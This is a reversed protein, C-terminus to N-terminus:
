KARPRKRTVVAIVGLLFSLIALAGFTASPHHVVALLASVAPTPRPAAVFTGEVAAGDISARCERLDAVCLAFCGVLRGGPADGADAFGIFTRAALEGEAEGAGDIRESTVRGTHEISRVRLAGVRAIRLATSSVAARLHDLVFPELEDTWAHTEGGFCATVLPAADGPASGPPRWAQWGLVSVAPTQSVDLPALSAATWGKPVTVLVRVESGTM